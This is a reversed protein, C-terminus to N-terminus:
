LLRPIMPLDENVIPADGPLRFMERRSGVGNPDLQHYEKRGGDPEDLM